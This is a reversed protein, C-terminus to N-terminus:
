RAESNYEKRLEMLLIGLRNKGNGKAGIGWYYDIPSNEILIEEGTNLLATKLVPYANFKYRLATLMVQEKVSEWDPRLPLNRDRGMNAAEKPTDASRVLDEYETGAFKKAQYFHETTPWFQGEAWFPHRSFNSMYGHQEYSAYFKIAM